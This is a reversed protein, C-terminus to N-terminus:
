RERGISLRGTKESARLANWATRTYSTKLMRLNHRVEASLVSNWAFDIANDSIWPTVIKAFHDDAHFWAILVSTDAYTIM